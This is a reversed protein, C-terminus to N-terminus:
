KAEVNRDIKSLYSLGLAPNEIEKERCFEKYNEQIKNSDFKEFLSGSIIDRIEPEETVVEVKNAGATLLKSKDVTAADAASSHVRVKVKYRGDEKIEGLRDSLHIDVKQAQVDIVQYRMNVQNKIFEHSGDNYIITYGKEEDEGFNHQRSSGVFEVNTGEIVCRNHYHAVLVKDFDGFITAPLENESSHALAGNIGEHIYLINKRKKDMGGKVLANLKDTFSGSEPFYAIMHVIFDWNDDNITLFDDVVAVNDFKGYVHCYGRIAEQNVKDHNGNAMVVGINKNEAAQLMDFVALLIDLNQASRSQFLDGGLLILGIGNQECVELAENWNATFEVTNDKSVHIDNLLLVCPYIKDSM